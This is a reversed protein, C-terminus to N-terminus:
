WWRWGDCEVEGGQEPNGDLALMGREVDKQWLHKSGAAPGRVCVLAHEEGSVVYEWAADGCAITGGTFPVRHAADLREARAKKEAAIRAAKERREQAEREKKAQKHFLLLLSNGWVGCVVCWVCVCM